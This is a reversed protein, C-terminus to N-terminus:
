WYVSQTEDFARLIRGKVPWANRKRRDELATYHVQLPAITPLPSIVPISQLTEKTEPAQAAAAIETKQEMRIQQTYAASAATVAIVAGIMVLYAYDMMWKKARHMWLITKGPMDMWGDKRM